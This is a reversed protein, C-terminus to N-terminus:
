PLSASEVELLCSMEVERAYGVVAGDDNKTEEWSEGTAAVDFRGTSIEPARGSSSRVMQTLDIYVSDPATYKLSSSTVKKPPADGDAKVVLFDREISISHAVRFTNQSQERLLDPAATSNPLSVFVSVEGSVIIGVTMFNQFCTGALNSKSVLVPQPKEPERPFLDIVWQHFAPSLYAAIVFLLFGAFVTMGALLEWDARRARHLLTRLTTLM